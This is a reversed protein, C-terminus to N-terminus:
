RKEFSQILERRRINRRPKRYAWVTGDGSKWVVVNRASQLLAGPRATQAFRVLEATREEGFPHPSGLLDKMQCRILYPALAAIETHFAERLLGIRRPRRRELRCPRYLAEAYANLAEAERALRRATRALMRAAPPHDSMRDLYPLVRHRVRNRLFRLDRNTSDESWELGAERAACRVEDRTWDILPRIVRMGEIEAVPKFGALGTLGSGRLLRMLFTEALDDQHHGLVLADCRSRRVIQKLAALRARRAADELSGHGGHRLKEGDLARFRSEVGLRKALSAVRRQDADSEKGRLRHNVHAVVVEPAWAPRGPATMLWLLATSDAGGSVGVAVRRCGSFWAPLDEQEWFRGAAQLSRESSHIGAGKSNM